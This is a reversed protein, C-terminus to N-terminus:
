CKSEKYNNMMNFQDNLVPATFFDTLEFTIGFEKLYDEIVQM